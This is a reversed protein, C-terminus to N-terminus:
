ENSVKRRSRRMGARLSEFVAEMETISDRTYHLEARYHDPSIVEYYEDLSEIPFREIAREILAETSEYRLSKRPAALVLASPLIRIVLFRVIADLLCDRPVRKKASVADIQSDAHFISGKRPTIPTSFQGGM